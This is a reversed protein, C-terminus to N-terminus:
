AYISTMSYYKSTSTAVFQMRGYPGINLSGNQTVDLWIGSPVYTTITSNTDNIVYIIQGTAPTPLTVGTGSAVSTVVNITKTLVTATAQTAGNAAVSGNVSMRLYGGVSANNGNFDGNVTLSILSGVGTINSYSGQRINNALDATGSTTASSATAASAVVGVVNSANVFTINAGNGTFMQATFINGSVSGTSGIVFSGINGSTATLLGNITANANATLLGRVTMSNNSTIAGAFFATSGSSTFNGRVLSNQVNSDGPSYVAGLNATGTVRIIGSAILNGSDVNGSLTITNGTISNVATINGISTNGVVELVGNITTNGNGKIRVTPGGALSGVLNNSITVSDNTGTIVTFTGNLSPTAAGTINITSGSAFPIPSQTNFSVTTVTGTGSFGTIELNAGTSIGSTTSVIGLTTLGGMGSIMGNAVVGNVGINGTFTANGSNINSGVINGQITLLSTTKNFTMGAVAKQNGSDNFVVQMDDGPAQINAGAPLVINGYITGAAFAGQISMNAATINGAVSLASLTGVSTINPQAATALNGAVTGATINGADINGSVVAAPVALAGSSDSVTITGLSLSNGSLYLDKWRHTPTGLDYVRNGDPVLSTTIYGSMGFNATFLSGTFTANVTTINPALDVTFPTNYQTITATTLSPTTLVGVRLSNTSGTFGSTKITISSINATLAVNGTSRNQALGAGATVESVGTSLLQSYLDTFNNQVKQFAARIPDAAPDNPFSGFDINQQAM